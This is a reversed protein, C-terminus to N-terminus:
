EELALEWVAAMSQENRVEVIRSDADDSGRGIHVSVRGVMRDDRELAHAHWPFVQDTIFAVAHAKGVLPKTVLAQHDCCSAAPRCAPEDVLRARERLLADGRAFQQGLM